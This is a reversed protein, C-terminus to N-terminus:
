GFQHSDKDLLFLMNIAPMSFYHALIDAYILEDEAWVARVIELPLDCTNSAIQHDTHPDRQTVM